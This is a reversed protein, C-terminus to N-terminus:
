HRWWPSPWRWRQKAHDWEQPVRPPYWVDFAGVSSLFAASARDHRFGGWACHMNDALEQVGTALMRGIGHKRESRRVYFSARLQRYARGPTVLSWGLVTSVDPYEFAWVAFADWRDKYKVLASRMISDDRFNLSYFQEYLERHVMPLPAFDCMVEM